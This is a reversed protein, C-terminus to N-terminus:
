PATAKRKDEAQNHLRDFFDAQTVTAGPSASVM